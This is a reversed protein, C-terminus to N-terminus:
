LFFDRRRPVDFAHLVQVWLFLGSLPIRAADVTTVSRVTQLFAMTAVVLGLALLVKLVISPRARRVYSFTYGAPALVLATVAVAGTVAGQLALAVIGVEVALAVVVRM